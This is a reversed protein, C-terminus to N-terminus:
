CNLGSTLFEDRVKIADDLSFKKKNLIKSFVIKKNRRFSIHYYSTNKNHILSINRQNLKNNKNLKTNIRQESRTALRINDARNNLCNKDIHDYTMEGERKGVFANGVLTHVKFTKVKGKSIWFSVAMYNRHQTQKMKRWLSSYHKKTSYVEGYNSVIYDPYGEIRRYDRFM